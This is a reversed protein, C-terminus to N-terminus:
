IVTPKVRSSALSIQPFSCNWSSISYDYDLHRPGARRLTIHQMLFFSFIYFNVWCFEIFYEMLIMLDKKKQNQICHATKEMEDNGM